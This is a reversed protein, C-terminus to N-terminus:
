IQEPQQMDTNIDQYPEKREKIRLEVREFLQREENPTAHKEKKSSPHKKRTTRKDSNQCTM